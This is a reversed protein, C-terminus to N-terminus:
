QGINALLQEIVYDQQEDELHPGIPLGVLHDCIFETAPYSGRARELAAFAPQLHMPPTYTLNTGVGKEALRERLQDRNSVEIVYNRWAHEVGPRCQPPRIASGKLAAEYRAAQRRRCAINAEMSPLKVRLMAAQIEDLRQNMGITEHWFWGAEGLGSKKWSRGRSEGYESIKRLREALDGDETLVCGGAGMAGLHKNRGFSFCTTTALSGVKRGNITAGLALCADEVVPIRREAAIAKIQDIDAPHGFMDVPIIARTRSTLAAKLAKPSMTRTVQDIDVWVLTAGSMVVASSTAGDTNPVTIVEDGPKIGLALLSALLAATGSNVSVAFSAGNWAAFEAEFRSVEHDADLNGTLVREVAIKMDDLFPRNIKDRDYVPIPM